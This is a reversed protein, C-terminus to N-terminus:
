AAHWHRFARLLEERAEPAIADEEIRGVTRVTVRMQELYRSCWGCQKIHKEFRRRDRWSLAGEFYDNVLEVFEQCSM